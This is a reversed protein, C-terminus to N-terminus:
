VSFLINWMRLSITDKFLQYYVQNNLRILVERGGFNQEFWKEFSKQFEGIQFYDLSFVPFEQKVFVGSLKAVVARKLFKCNTVKYTVLLMSPLTIVIAIIVLIVINIRSKTSM